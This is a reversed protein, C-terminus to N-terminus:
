ILPKLASAILSHTPLETLFSSPPHPLSDTTYLKEIHRELTPLARRFVHTIFAYLKANPNAERLSKALAAISSGSDAIDDVIIFSNGHAEVSLSTIKHKEYDRRKIAWTYPIGLAKSLLAAREKAGEDVGVIEDAKISISGFIKDVTLSILSIGSKAAYKFALPSHVDLCIVAEVGLSSLISFYDKLTINEEKAPTPKDQRANSLYPQVVIKRGRAYSLAYFLAADESLGFSYDVFIVDKPPSGVIKVEGSPFTHLSLQKFPIRLANAIRKAKPADREFSSLLM